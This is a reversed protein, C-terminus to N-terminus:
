ISPRPRSWVADRAAQQVFGQEELVFKMLFNVAAISGISAASGVLLLWFPSKSM